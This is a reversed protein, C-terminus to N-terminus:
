VTDTAVMAGVGRGRVLGATSLLRPLGDESGTGTCDSTLPFVYAWQYGRRKGTKVLEGLEELVIDVIEAGKYDAADAHLWQILRERNGASMGEAVIHTM